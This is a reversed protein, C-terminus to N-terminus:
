YPGQYNVISFGCIPHGFACSQYTWRANIYFQGGSDGLWCLGYINANAGTITQYPQTLWTISNYNGNTSRLNCQNAYDTDIVGPCKNISIELTVPQPTYAGGASEGLSVQGSIRGDFNPGKIAVVQGSRQMQMIPNGLGVFTATLMDEPTTPCGAPPPPPPPTGGVVTITITSPSGLVAPSAPTVLTAACTGGASIPAQIPSTMQGAAFTVPYTGTIACGAGSYSFNVVTAGFTTGEPGSRVVAFEVVTHPSATMSGTSMVYTEVTPPPPPPPPTTGSCQVTVSGDPTISMSSYACEDKGSAGTLKVKGQAHADSVAGLALAAALVVFTRRLLSLQHPTSM